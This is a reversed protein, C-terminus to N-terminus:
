PGDGGGVAGGSTQLLVAMLNSMLLVWILRMVSGRAARWTRRGTERTWTALVSWIPRGWFPLFVGCGSRTAVRRRCVCTGHVEELSRRGSSIGEALAM